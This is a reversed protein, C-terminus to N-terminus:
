LARGGIVVEADDGINVAAACEGNVGADRAIVAPVSLPLGDRRARGNMRALPFITPPPAVDSRGSIVGRGASRPYSM